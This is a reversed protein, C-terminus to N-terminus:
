AGNGEPSPAKKANLAAKAVLAAEQCCGCCASNAISRLAAVFRGKDNQQQEIAEYFRGETLNGRGLRQHWRHRWEADAELEAARERWHKCNDLAKRLPETSRASRSLALEAELARIRNELEAQPQTPTQEGYSPNIM